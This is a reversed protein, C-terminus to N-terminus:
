RRLETATPLASHTKADATIRRVEAVSLGLPATLVHQSEPPVVYLLVDLFFDLLVQLTAPLPAISSAVAAAASGAPGGGGRGTDADSSPAPSSSSPSSSSGVDAATAAARGPSSPSSSGETEVAAAVLTKQVPAITVHEFVPALMDKKEQESVQGASLQENVHPLCSLAMRLLKEQLSASHLTLGTVLSPFLARLGDAHMNSLGLDLLMVAFNKTFASAHPVNMADLLAKCPLRIDKSAKARKMVHSVVAVAAAQVTPKQPDLCGLVTPLVAGLIPEMQSDKTKALRFALKNLEFVEQEPTRVVVAAGPAAGAAAAAQDAMVLLTREDAWQFFM